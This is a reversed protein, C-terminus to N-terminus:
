LLGDKRNLNNLIDKRLSDNARQLGNLSRIDIPRGNSNFQENFVLLTMTENLKYAAIGLGVYVVTKVITTGIRTWCEYKEQKAREADNLLKAAERATEIQEKTMPVELQHDVSYVVDDLAAQVVKIQKKKTERKLKRDEIIGAIAKIMSNEKAKEKLDELKM